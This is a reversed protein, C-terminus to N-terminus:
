SLHRYDTRPGVLYDVVICPQGDDTLQSSFNFEILSDVNWGIDDGIKIGKLGMEYYVDNLSVYMETLLTKNFDNELRRLKEMDSKFYRGSISDYCLVEGKGTLIVEKKSVPDKALHDKAIEDRVAQEKKEGITEIVKSQYEKLTAETISYVSALAANRKLNISNAGIICAVTVGGM